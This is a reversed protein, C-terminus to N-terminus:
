KRTCIAEEYHHKIDFGINRYCTIAPTNDAKVNLAVTMNEDVLEATLKSTLRTALGRGRHEPRTAISGLVALRNEKSYVHVGAVALIDGEGVYGFFKGTVLMRQDFYGDPYASDYLVFLKDLHSIDLRIICPDDDDHCKQYEGLAMKLHTGLSEVAFGSRLLADDPSRFHCFFKDPLEPLSRRLFDPFADTLGFAMVTVFLPNNYVLLAEEIDGGDGSM